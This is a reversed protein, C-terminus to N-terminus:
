PSDSLRARKRGATVAARLPGAQLQHRGCRCEAIAGELWDLAWALPGDVPPDLDLVNILARHRGTPTGRGAIDGAPTLVVRPPLDGPIQLVVARGIDTRYVRALVHDGPCVITLLLAHRAAPSNVLSTVARRLDALRSEAAIAPGIDPPSGPGTM